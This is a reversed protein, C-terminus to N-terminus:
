GGMSKQGIVILLLDLAVQLSHGCGQGGYGLVLHEALRPLAAIKGIQDDICGALGAGGRDKGIPGVM